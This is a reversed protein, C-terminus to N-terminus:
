IHILSLEFIGSELLKIVEIGVATTTRQSDEFVVDALTQKAAVTARLEPQLSHIRDLAETVDNLLKESKLRILNELQDRRWHRSADSGWNVRTAAILLLVAGFPPIGKTRGAMQHLLIEKIEAVFTVTQGNSWQVGDANPTWKWLSGKPAALYQKAQHQISEIM